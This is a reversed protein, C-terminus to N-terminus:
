IVLMVAFALGVFVVLVCFVVDVSLGCDFAVAGGGFCDFDVWFWDVFMLWCYLWRMELWIMRVVVFLCCLLCVLVFLLEVCAFWLYVFM